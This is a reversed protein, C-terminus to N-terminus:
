WGQNLKRNHEFIERVLGKTYGDARQFHTDIKVVRVTPKTPPLKVDLENDGSVNDLDIAEDGNSPNEEGDKLVHSWFWHWKILQHKTRSTIRQKTALILAAANDEFVTSHVASTRLEHGLDLYTAVDILLRQLPLLTRLATSLACYESEATSLVIEQLLFSKWVLPCDGLTIIFGARSKVSTPDEDPERKYLGAFDADVYLNLQLTGDPKMITGKDRTGALYRLIMKVATGHSQKPSHNFRAVQSVAFAIDPRSNTALYMLMGVVSSYLWTEKFPAGEPDSGLAVQMAPVFNPNCNEMGATALVMDILGRQTLEYSGDDPNFNIKIGLFESLSDEKTLDFGKDKLRTVLADVLEETPASIALDDVFVVAMMDKKYFLCKDISSQHFGDALLAEFLMECWLKPAVKTGYLSKVLRLITRGPRKSRFGRPLHIWIPKKLTAQVFASAFDIAFGVWGLSLTLVMFLRVTSWHVVPSYTDFEGEQLDGRVCYRGKFKKIEGDPTRKIRFAWTGPLIRETAEEYDTEVWTNNKELVRVEAEAAKIWEFRLAEDAMAEDYSFLDPNTKKTSAKFAGFHSWFNPSEVDPLRWPNEYASSFLGYAKSGDYGYRDTGEYGWRDIPKPNRKPRTPRFSKENPVLSSTPKPDRRAPAPISSSPENKLTVSTSPTSPNNNNLGPKVRVVEVHGDDDEDNDTTPPPNAGESRGSPPSSPAPKPDNTMFSSKAIPAQVFADRIDVNNPLAHRFAQEIQQRRTLDPPADGEQVNVLDNEDVVYQFESAGFMQQWEPGTLHSLADDTAEVTAFWDDFVVHFPSSFYGSEPDLVFPVTSAHEPSHGMYVCRRSRPQWRPLKKGDTITKELVYVPCGWVHLDHFRQQNWRTRTFIDNPSLGTSPNPVHNHLYLAHRVAMPWLEADAMDPWHIAAHLMMTHSTSMISQIAREAVGNQHHAGVGAFSLIQRFGLLHQRFGASTFASGRDTLYEQPVVGHDQCHLEYAEKAKLTEHTNMHSQFEIHIYGSAHDVFICGGAYKRDDAAKGAGTFLRGKTSCIFHDASIKEGPMLKDKSLAGAKDRVQKTRTAGTSRQHQKGFQCAACKPNSEMRAASRHLTKARETHALIGTRKLFKVVRFGIHGLRSHWRLLEKEPESLNINREHVVTVYGCFHTAPGYDIANAQHAWLIPLKNGPDVPVTVRGRLNDGPIGPIVARDKGVTIEEGDYARAFQTLSLLRVQSQPVYLARMKLTRLMGNDDEVSWAVHGELEVPTEGQLLDVSKETSKKLKGVFDDRAFSICYSSGSDLVVPVRNNKNTAFFPRLFKPTLTSAAEFAKAFRRKSKNYKTKADQTGAVLSLCKRFAAEQKPTFGQRPHENRRARENVVRYERNPRKPPSSRARRHGPHKPQSTPGRSGVCGISGEHASLKTEWFRLESYIKQVMLLMTKLSRRDHFRANNRFKRPYQKRFGADLISPAKWRARLAKRKWQQYARREHRSCNDNWPNRGIWIGSGFILLWLIPAFYVSSAGIITTIHSHFLPILADSWLGMVVLGLIFGAMLTSVLKITVDSAQQATPPKISTALAWIGNLNDHYRAYHASAQGSSRQQRNQGSSDNNRQGAQHESTYHTVTYRGNAGCKACWKYNKGNRQLDDGKFTTRWNDSSSNPRGSGGNHNRSSQSSHNRNGNRNSTQNRSRNSRSQGPGSENSNQLIGQHNSPRAGGNESFRISRQNSGGNSQSTSPDIQQILALGHAGSRVSMTGPWTNTRKAELYAAEAQAFIKTYTLKQTELYKIGAKEDLGHIHSIADSLNGQITLMKHTYLKAQNDPDDAAAVLNAVVDVLSAPKWYGGKELEGIASRLKDCMEQVNRGEFDIAKIKKLEEELKRYYAHSKPELYAVMTMFVVAFPHDRQDLPKNCRIRIKQELGDSMFNYLARVALQDNTHDFSDYNAIQALAATEAADLQFRPFHTCLPLMETADVPNKLYTVTDMGNRRCHLFFSEAIRSFEPATMTESFKDSEKEPGQIRYDERKSEYTAGGRTQGPFRTGQNAAADLDSWDALPKGGTWLFVRTKDGDYESFQGGM